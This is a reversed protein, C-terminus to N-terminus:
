TSRGAKGSSMWRRVAACTWSPHGTATPRWQRPQRTRRSRPLRSMRGPCCAGVRDPRVVGTGTGLELVRAGDPLHAALVALLRGVAPECSMPFGAQRARGPRGSGTTSPPKKRCGSEERPRNCALRPSRGPSAPFEGEGTMLTGEQNGSASRKMESRLHLSPVVAPPPRPEAPGPEPGRQGRPPFDLASPAPALMGVVPLQRGQCDLRPGPAASHSDKPSRSPPGSPSPPLARTGLHGSIGTSSRWIPSSRRASAQAHGEPSRRTSSCRQPLKSTATLLPPVTYGGTPQNLEKIGPNPTDRAYRFDCVGGCCDETKLPPM